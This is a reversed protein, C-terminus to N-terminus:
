RLFTLSPSGPVYRYPNVHAHQVIGDWVYRYIDSSLFPEAFYTVAQFAVAFGLVIRLTWKDTPETLVLMVAAAFLAICGGSCGSFGIWFRDHEAVFQKAFLLLGVGLVVLSANTVSARGDRYGALRRLLPSRQVAHLRSELSTRTVDSGKTM